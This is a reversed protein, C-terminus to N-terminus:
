LYKATTAKIYEEIDQLAIKLTLDDSAERIGSVLDILGKMVAFRGGKREKGFLDSPTINYYKCIKDIAALPPTARGNEWNGLSERSIKMGKAAIEQTVGKAHRLLILKDSIIM